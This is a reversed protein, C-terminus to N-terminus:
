LFGIKPRSNAINNNNWTTAFAAWLPTSISTGSIVSPDGNVYVDSKAGANAVVDPFARGGICNPDLGNQWPTPPEKYTCGAGALGWLKEGLYNGGSDLVLLTGGVAVVYPSSTPYSEGIAGNDGSGFFWSTGAMAGMQLIQDMNRDPN